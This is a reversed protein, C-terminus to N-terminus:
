ESFTTVSSPHNKDSRNYINRTQKVPAKTFSQPGKKNLRNVRQEIETEEDSDDEIFDAIDEEEEYFDDSDSEYLNSHTRSASSASKRALEGDDDFM